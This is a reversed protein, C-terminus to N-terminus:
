RERETVTAPCTVKRGLGHWAALERGIAAVLLFGAAAVGQGATV